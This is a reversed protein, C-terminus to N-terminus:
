PVPVADFGLLVAGKACQQRDPSNRKVRRYGAHVEPRPRHQFPATGKQHEVFDPKKSARRLLFRGKNFVKAGGFTAARSLGEAPAGSSWCDLLTECRVRVGNSRAIGHFVSVSASGPTM